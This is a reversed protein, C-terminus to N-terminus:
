QSPNVFHQNADIQILECIPQANVEVKKYRVDVQNLEFQKASISFRAHINTVVYEVNNAQHFLMGRFSTYWHLNM